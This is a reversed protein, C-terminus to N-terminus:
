ESEGFWKDSDLMTQKVTNQAQQLRDLVDKYNKSIQERVHRPHLIVPFNKLDSMAISKGFSGRESLQLATKGHSSNLMLYLYYPDIDTFPRLIYLNSNAIIKQTFDPLLYSKISTSRALLAIDYPKVVYKEFKTYLEQNIAVLRELNLADNELAMQTLMFSENDIAVDAVERNFLHCGRFIQCCDSLRIKQIHLADWDINKTFNHEQQVQNVSNNQLESRRATIRRYLLHLKSPNFRYSIRGFEAYDVAGSINPILTKHEINTVLEQLMRPTLYQTISSKRYFRENIYYVTSNDASKTLVLLARPDNRQNNLYIINVLWQKNILIERLNELKDTDLISLRVSIYLNGNPKLQELLYFLHYYNVSTTSIAQSLFEASFEQNIAVLHEMDTPNFGNEPFLELFGQHSYDTVDFWKNISLYANDFKLDNSIFPLRFNVDSLSVQGLDHHTFIANIINERWRTLDTVLSTIELSDQQKWLECTRVGFTLLSSQPPLLKAVLQDAMISFRADSLLNLLVQALSSLEEPSLQNIVNTLDSLETFSILRLSDRISLANSFFGKIAPISSELNNCRQLIDDNFVTVLSDIPHAEIGKVCILTLSINIISRLEMDNMLSINLAQTFNAFGEKLMSYSTDYGDLSLLNDLSKRIEINMQNGQSCM